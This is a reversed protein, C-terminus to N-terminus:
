FRGELGASGIGIWPSFGAVNRSPSGPATILLAAGTGLGVIGVPLAVTAVSRTRNYSDVDSQMKRCHHTTSDCNPSSDLSSRKSSMYAGSVAFTAVGTSGVVLAVWGWTTQATSETTSEAYGGPLSDGEFRALTVGITASCDEPPHTDSDVSRRCAAKNGDSNIEANSYTQGGGANASVAKARAAAEGEAAASFVFAGVTRVAVYHTAGDCDGQLGYRSISMPTSEYQGVTTTDVFLQGADRLRTELTAAGLPVTAYLKADDKIDIRDDKRNVRKYIYEGRATCRPLIEMDCGSYRVIVTSTQAAAELASRKQSTWDVVLIDVQNGSEQCKSKVGHSRLNPTQSAHLGGITCSDCLGMCASVLVLALGVVISDNKAWRDFRGCAPRILVDGLWWWLWPIM